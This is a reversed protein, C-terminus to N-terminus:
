IVVRTYTIVRVGLCGTKYVPYQMVFARNNLGDINQLVYGFVGKIDLMFMLRACKRFTIRARLLKFVVGWIFLSRFMTLSNILFCANAYNNCKLRSTWQNFRTVKVQTKFHGGTNVLRRHAIHTVLRGQLNKCVNRTQESSAPWDRKIVQLVRQSTDGRRKM